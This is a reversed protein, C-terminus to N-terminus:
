VKQSMVPTDSAPANRSPTHDAPDLRLWGYFEGIDEPVQVIGRAIVFSGKITHVVGRILHPHRFLGV